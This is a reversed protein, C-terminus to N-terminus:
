QCDFRSHCQILFSIDGPTSFKVSIACPQYQAARSVSCIICIFTTCRNILLYLKVCAWQDFATSSSIISPPLDPNFIFLLISLYNVKISCGHNVEELRMLFNLFFLMLDIIPMSWQALTSGQKGDAVKQHPRATM